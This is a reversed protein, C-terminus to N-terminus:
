LNRKHVIVENGDPDAVVAFRCVPSASTDLVFQVQRQKLRGVFADLDAVEFAVVAGKAGAIHTTDMTTIAFSTGSLDYELWEDRFNRSLKLGLINEYFDRSRSIDSVPYCFFAIETIM